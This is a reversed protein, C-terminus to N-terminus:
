KALILLEQIGWTVSTKWSFTVTARNNLFYEAKKQFGLIRNQACMVLGSSGTLLWM